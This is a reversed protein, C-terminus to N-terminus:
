AVGAVACTRADFREGSALSGWWAVVRALSIGAEVHWPHAFMRDIRTRVDRPDRAALAKLAAENARRGPMEARDKGWGTSRPWPTGRGNLPYATGYTERFRRAFHRFVPGPTQRRIAAPPRALPLELTAQAPVDVRLV